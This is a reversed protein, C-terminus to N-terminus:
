TDSRGLSGLFSIGLVSELPSAKDAGLWSGCDAPGTLSAVWTSLMLTPDTVLRALYAHAFVDHAIM